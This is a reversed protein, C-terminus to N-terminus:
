LLTGYGQDTVVSVYFFDFRGSLKGMAQILISNKRLFNTSWLIRQCSRRQHSSPVVLGNDEVFFVALVELHYIHLDISRFHM